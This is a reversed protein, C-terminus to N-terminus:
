PYGQLTPMSLVLQVSFLKLVFVALSVCKFSYIGASCPRFSQLSDLFIIKRFELNYMVKKSADRKMDEKHQNLKTKM